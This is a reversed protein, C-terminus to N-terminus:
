ETFGLSFFCFSHVDGTTSRSSGRPTQIQRGRGSVISFESETACRQDDSLNASWRMRRDSRGTPDIPSQDFSMRAFGLVDATFANRDFERSLTFHLRKVQIEYTRMEPMIERPIRFIKNKLLKTVFQAPPYTEPTVPLEELDM